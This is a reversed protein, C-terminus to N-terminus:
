KLEGEKINYEEYVTDTVLEKLVTSKYRTFLFYFTKSETQVRTKCQVPLQKYMRETSVYFKYNM